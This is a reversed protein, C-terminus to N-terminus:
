TRQQSPQRGRSGGAMVRHTGPRGPADVGGCRGGGRGALAAVGGLPMRDHISTLEQTAPTTVIALTLARDGVAGRSCEWIGGLVVPQRDARALAHPLKQGDVKQWEFWADVPVLCRRQRFARRFLKSSAITECRANIPRATALEPVKEWPALLGWRM